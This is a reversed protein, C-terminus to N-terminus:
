ELKKINIKDLPYCFLTLDHDDEALDSVPPLDNHIQETRWRRFLRNLTFQSKGNGDAALRSQGFSAGCGRISNLYDGVRAFENVEGLTGRGARGFHKASEEPAFSM